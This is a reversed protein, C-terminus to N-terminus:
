VYRPDPDSPRSAPPRHWPAREGYGDGRITRGLYVANALILVTALLIILTTM